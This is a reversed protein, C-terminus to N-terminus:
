FIVDFQEGCNWNMSTCAVPWVSNGNCCGSTGATMAQLGGKTNAMEVNSIKKVKLNKLELKKM